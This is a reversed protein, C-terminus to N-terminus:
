RSLNLVGGVILAAVDRVSLGSSFSHARILLLADAASVRLQAVVMGTAQHVERRSYGVDTLGQPDRDLARRMIQAAAVSALGTAVTLAQPAMAGPEDSYVTVAGIGLTGVRLPFAHVARVYARDVSRALMPWRSGAETRIDSVMVPLRASAADWGPGEGLDIQAEDFHAAAADSACVMEIGFPDGLTSIAAGTAALVAIFPQCLEAGDGIGTAAFATDDTM